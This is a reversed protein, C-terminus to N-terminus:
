SFRLICAIGSLTHRYFRMAAAEVTQAAEVTRGDETAVWM